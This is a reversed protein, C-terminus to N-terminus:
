EPREVLSDKWDCTGPRYSAFVCARRFSKKPAWYRAILTPKEAHLWGTGDEDRSLWKFEPAVHSWDISPKTLPQPKVRYVVYQFWLPSACDFFGEGEKCSYREYPGGHAKLAEQTEPDLLGFPTTIKTLDIM